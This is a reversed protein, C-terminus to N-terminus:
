STVIRHNLRHQKIADNAGGSLMACWLLLWLQTAGINPCRSTSNILLILHKCLLSQNSSSGQQSKQVFVNGTNILVDGTNQANFKAITRATVIEIKQTKQDFRMGIGQLTSLGRQVLVHPAVNTIDAGDYTM